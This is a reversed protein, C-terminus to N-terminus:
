HRDARRLGPKAESVPLLVSVQAQVPVSGERRSHAATFPKSFNSPNKRKQDVECAAEVPEISV